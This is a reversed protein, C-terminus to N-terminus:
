CGSAGYEHAGVDPTGTRCHEWADIFLSNDFDSDIDTGQNIALTDGLKLDFDSYVSTYITPPTDVFDFPSSGADVNTFATWNTGSTATVTGTQNPAYLLNNYCRHGTGNAETNYCWVFNFTSTSDTYVTNNFVHNNSWDAYTPWSGHTALPENYTQVFSITGSSSDIGRLDAINNRVTTDASGLFVLGSTPDHATVGGSFRMMNNEILLDVVNTIGFPGEPNCGADRCVRIFPAASHGNSIFLNRSVVTNSCIQSEPDTCRLQILNREDSGGGADKMINDSVVTDRFGVFRIPYEGTNNGDLVNNQMAMQEGHWFQLSGSGSGYNNNPSFTFSSGWVGIRTAFISANGEMTMAGGSIGSCTSRSVVMGDKATMDVCSPSYTICTKIYYCSDSAAPTDDGAIDIGAVTWNDGLYVASETSDINILPNTGCVGGSTSRSSILGPAASDILTVQGAIEWTEGCNAVVWSKAGDTNPTAELATDFNTQSGIQTAGSPCWSAFDTGTSVCYISGAFYTVPDQVVLATTASDTGGSANYVNLGVDYTGPTEYMHSAVRGHASNLSYGTVGTGSNPDDFDWRYDLTHFLRTSASDTTTQADFLVLCPAICETSHGLPQAAFAATITSGGGGGAYQAHGPGPTPWLNLLLALILSLKM